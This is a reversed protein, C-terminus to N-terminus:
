GGPIAGRQDDPPASIPRIALRALVRFIVLYPREIFLAFKVDRDCVPSRSCLRVRHLQRVAPLVARRHRLNTISAFYNSRRFLPQVAVRGCTSVTASPGATGRPLRNARWGTQRQRQPLRSPRQETHRRPTEGSTVRYWRVAENPSCAQDHQQDDSSWGLKDNAVNEVLDTVWPNGADAEPATWRNPDRRRNRADDRQCARPPPTGLSAIEFASFGDAAADIRSLYTHDRGLGMASPDGAESPVRLSGRHM